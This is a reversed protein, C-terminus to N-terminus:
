LPCVGGLLVRSLSELYQQDLAEESLHLAQSFLWRYDNQFWGITSIFVIVAIMEAPINQCLQGAEQAARLRELVQQMARQSHDSNISAPMNSLTQWAMIRALEPHKQIFQFRMAILSELQTKIDPNINDQALFDLAALVYDEYIEDRILNWLNQKAGFHHHILSQNVEAKEAIDGMSTGDFGHQVFLIKAAQKIKNQTNLTRIQVKKEGEKM